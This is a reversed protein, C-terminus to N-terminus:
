EAASTDEAPTLPTDTILATLLERCQEAIEPEKSGTGTTDRVGFYLEEPLKALDGELRRPDDKWNYCGEEQNVGVTDLDLTSFFRENETIRELFDEYSTKDFVFFMVDGAALHAALKQNNVMTLQGNDGLSLNEVLVNIEGDGDIDRGYQALLDAILTDEQGYGLEPNTNATDLMVIVTYDYHTKTVSQVILIVAVVLVFAGFLVPWKYYFWFHAMKEKFTKPEQPPPSPQLDKEDVGVLYMERAM